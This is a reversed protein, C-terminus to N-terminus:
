KQKAFFSNASEAQAQRQAICLTVREEAQALMRPM